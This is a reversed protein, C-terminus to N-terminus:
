RRFARRLSGATIRGEDVVIGDRELVPTRLRYPHDDPVLVEEYTAGLSALAEKAHDCLGCNQSTYLVLRVTV